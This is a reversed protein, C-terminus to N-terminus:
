TANPQRTGTSVPTTVPSAPAAERHEEEELSQLMKIQARLSRGKLVLYAALVRLPRNSDTM